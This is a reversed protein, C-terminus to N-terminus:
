LKLNCFMEIILFKIFLRINRSMILKNNFVIISIIMWHSKTPKVNKVTIIKQFTLLCLVSITVFLNVNM